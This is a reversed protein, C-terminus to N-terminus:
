YHISDMEQNYIRNDDQVEKLLINYLETVVVDASVKIIGRHYKSTAIPHSYFKPDPNLSFDWEVDNFEFTMEVQNTSLNKQLKLEVEVNGNRLELTITAIEM